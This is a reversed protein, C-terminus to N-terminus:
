NGAFELKAIQFKRYKKGGLVKSGHKTSDTSTSGASVSSQLTSQTKSLPHVASPEANGTDGHTM